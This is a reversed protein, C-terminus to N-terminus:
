MKQKKVMKRNITWKRFFKWVQIDKFISAQNETKAFRTNCQKKLRTYVSSYFTNAKIDKTHRETHFSNFM